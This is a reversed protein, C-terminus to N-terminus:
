GMQMLENQKKELAEDVKTIYQDTMKQIEELIDNMDDETIDSNKEAKKAANNAERRINRIEIRTEEAKDKVTKALESRREESLEPIPLRIVRGDNVPSIGLNSSQIAKEIESIANPDWPQIVLLRAEPATIGAIERLPMSKGYYDVKINEVLSPTAKGTRISDFSERMAETALEMHEKVEDQINEIDRFQSSM